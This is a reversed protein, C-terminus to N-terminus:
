PLHRRIQDSMEDFAQSLQLLVASEPKPSTARALELMDDSLDAFQEAKVAPVVQALAYLAADTDDTLAAVAPFGPFYFLPFDTM